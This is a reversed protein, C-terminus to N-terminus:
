FIYYLHLFMFTWMEISKHEGLVSYINIHQVFLKSIHYTKMYIFFTVQM